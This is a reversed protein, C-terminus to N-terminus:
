HSAHRGEPQASIKKPQMFLRGCLAAIAYYFKTLSSTVQRLTFQAEAQAIWLKAAHPWFQPLKVAIAAATATGVNSSELEM